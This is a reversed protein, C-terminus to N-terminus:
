KGVRVIEALAGHALSGQIGSKEIDAVLNVQVKVAGELWEVPVNILLNVPLGGGAPVAIDEAHVSPADGLKKGDSDIIRYELRLGPFLAASVDIASGNIIAVGMSGKGDDQLGLFGKSFIHLNNWIRTGLVSASSSRPLSSNSYDFPQAPRYSSNSELTKQFLADDEAYYQRLAKTLEQDMFFGPSLKSSAELAAPFLDVASAASSDPSAVSTNLQGLNISTATWEELAQKLRALQHINYIGTYCPVGRLYHHQPVWHPDLTDPEQAVLFEVFQRFTIGREMDPDVGSQVSRVVHKTHLQNMVTTRQIVFKEIYASIARNIPDRIVAFKYYDDSELIEKARALPLNKLLMGTDFADTVQHVGLRVIEQSKKAAELQVMMTKLSTCACKAIPSYLIRYRESLMYADIPWPLNNNSAFPFHQAAEMEWPQIAALSREPGHAHMVQKGSDTM